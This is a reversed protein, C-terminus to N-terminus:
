SREAPPAALREVRARWSAAGLRAFTEGAQALAASDVSAGCTIAYEARELVVVAQEFKMECEGTLREAEEFRDNALREDGARAALHAELRATQALVPPTRKMAGPEVLAAL